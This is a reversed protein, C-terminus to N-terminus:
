KDRQQNYIEQMKTEHGLLEPNDLLLRSTFEAAYSRIEERQQSNMGGNRYIEQTWLSYRRLTELNSDSINVTTM